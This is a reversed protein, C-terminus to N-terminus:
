DDSSTNSNSKAPDAVLKDVSIKEPAIRLRAGIRQLDAIATPPPMTSSDEPQSAMTKCKKLTHSKKSPTSSTVKRYGDHLASLRASRRVESDVIVRSAKPKRGRKLTVEPVVLFEFAEAVPEDLEDFCLARAVPRRVPPM